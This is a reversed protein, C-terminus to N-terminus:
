VRGPRVEMGTLRSILTRILWAPLLMVLHIVLSIGFVVAIARLGQNLPASLHSLLWPGAGALIALVLLLALGSVVPLWARRDSASPLMTSSIALLLYFWLWFDPLAPLDALGQWFLPWNRAGLAEAVPGLGLRSLGLWATLLGGTILPALGILADRFVDTPATEIFGLQLRGNPLRQPTLSFRGTRVGLIKATLYHSLEHLLTGPFFLLAFLGESLTPRRTLLLFIAQLEFHLHRQVFIFLLLGGTLWLLGDMPPLNM